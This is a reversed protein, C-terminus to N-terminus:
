LLGASILAQIKAEDAPTVKKRLEKLQALYIKRSALMSEMAELENQVEKITRDVQLFRPTSLRPGYCDLAPRDSCIEDRGM